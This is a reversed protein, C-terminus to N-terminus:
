RREEAIRGLVARAAALTLEVDDETHATSLYWLGNPRVYVGHALMLEALRAGRAADRQRFEDYLSVEGLETFITFFVPGAGNVVLPVGVRAAADRLGAALQEGLRNMHAFAGGERSLERLTAVAASVSVTNGNLTGLHGVEGTAVLELMDRRGAVASLPLGGAVAKGYVALDADVGYREQAGGLGVRFGTIVEDFVLLSGHRRTLRRLEDLYGPRPLLCGSNCVVPECIVAAVEGRARDLAARLADSDNWRVVLVDELAAASQGGTGPRAPGAQSLGDGTFIADSWGHYHGEFRIVKQRGTAARALRLALMVAETGSGSLAVLEAAPVADVIRRALEAEGQHQAGFTTGRRCAETVAEVIAPHAHGLILPGYAMTYDVYENGDVDIIRSGRGHSVFLPTPEVALRLTSAVGGALVRGSEHLLESSRDLTLSDLKTM